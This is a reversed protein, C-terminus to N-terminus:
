QEAIVLLMVRVFSRYVTRIIGSATQDLLLPRRYCVYVMGYNTRVAHKPLQEALIVLAHYSTKRGLVALICAMMVATM